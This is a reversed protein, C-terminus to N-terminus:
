NRLFSAESPSLREEFHLLSEKKREKREKREKGGFKLIWEDDDLGGGGDDGERSVPTSFFQRHKNSPARKIGRKSRKQKFM